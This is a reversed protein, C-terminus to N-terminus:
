RALKKLLKQMEKQTRLMEKQVQMHLRINENYEKLAERLENFHHPLELLQEITYTDHYEELEEAGGSEDVWTDKFKGKGLLKGIRESDVLAKHGKRIIKMPKLRLNYRDCYYQAIRQSNAYMRGFEADPETGYSPPCFIKLLGTDQIHIIYDKFEKPQERAYIWNNMQVIKRKPTDIFKFNGFNLIPYGVILHHCRWLAKKHLGDSEVLSEKVRQGFNTLSYIAYPYSQTHELVGLKVLRKLHYNLAQKPAKWNSFKACKDAITRLSLKSDISELLLLLFKNKVQRM